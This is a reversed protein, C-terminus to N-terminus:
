KEIWQAQDTFVLVEDKVDIFGGEIEAEKKNGGPEKISLIGKDLLTVLRSHGPLFGEYGDVTKLSIGEVMGEYVSEGPTVVKLKMTSAM